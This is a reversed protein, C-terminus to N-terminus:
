TKIMRFPEMMCAFTLTNVKVWKLTGRKGSAQGIDKCVAVLIPLQYMFPVTCIRVLKGENMDVDGIFKSDKDLRKACQANLQKLKKEGYQDWAFVTHGADRFMQRVSDVSQLEVVYSGNRWNNREVVYQASCSALLFLMAVALLAITISHIFKNFM